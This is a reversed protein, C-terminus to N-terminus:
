FFTYEAKIFMDPRMENFDSVANSKTSYIRGALEINLDDAASITFGLMGMYGKGYVDSFIYIYYQILDTVDGNVSVNVFTTNFTLDPGRVFDYYDRDYPDNSANILGYMTWPHKSLAGSNHFLQLGLSFYRSWTYDGGAYSQLFGKNEERFGQEYISIRNLGSDDLDFPSFYVAGLRWGAGLKTGNIGAGGFSRRAKWGAVLTLDIDTSFGTKYRFAFDQYLTNLDRNEVEGRNETENLVVQADTSETTLPNVISAFPYVDVFSVAPTTYYKDFNIRPVTYKRRQEYFSEYRNVSNHATWVLDIFTDGDFYYTYAASDSGRVEEIELTYPTVSTVVNLPNFFRGEGWNLVQRGVKLDWNDDEWKVWLEQLDSLIIGSSYEKHIYYGKGPSFNERSIWIENFSNNGYEQSQWYQWRGVLHFYISSDYSADAIIKAQLYGTNSYEAEAINQTYGFGKLSGHFEYYVGSNTDGPAPISDATESSNVKSGNDVVSSADSSDKPIADDNRAFLPLAILFILLLLNRYIKYSNVRM